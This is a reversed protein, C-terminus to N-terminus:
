TIRNRVAAQWAAMNGGNVLIQGQINGINAQNTVTSITSVTVTGSEVIVTGRQRQLSKDYGQPSNMYNLMRTLLLIM